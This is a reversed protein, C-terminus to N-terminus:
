DEFGGGGDATGPVGACASPRPPGEEASRRAEAEMEALLAEGVGQRRYPEDVVIASLKAAPEDYEISLSVHLGALGGVHGDLEAVVLRDAVM